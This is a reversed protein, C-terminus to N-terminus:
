EPGVEEGVRIAEEEKRAVVPATEPRLADTADRARGRQGAGGEEKGV